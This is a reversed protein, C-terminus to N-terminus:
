NISVRFFHYINTISMGDNESFKYPVIGDRWRHTDGAVVKRKRRRMSKRRDFNNIIHTIQEVTLVMDNEFLDGAVARNKSFETGDDFQPLADSM